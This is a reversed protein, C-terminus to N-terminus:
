NEKLGKLTYYYFDIKALQTLDFGYMLPRPINNTTINM